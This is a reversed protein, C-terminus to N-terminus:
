HEERRQKMCSGSAKQKWKCVTCVTDEPIAARAAEALSDKSTRPTVNAKMEVLGLMSFLGFIQIRTFFSAM